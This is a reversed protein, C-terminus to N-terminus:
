ETGGSAEYHKAVNGLHIQYLFGKTHAHSCFVRLFNWIVAVIPVWVMVSNCSCSRNEKSGEVLKRKRMCVCLRPSPWQELASPRATFQRGRFTCLDEELQLAAWM